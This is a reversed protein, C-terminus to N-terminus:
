KHLTSVVSSLARELLGPRAYRDFDIEAEVIDQLPKIPRFTTQPKVAVGNDGAGHILLSLENLHILFDPPTPQIRGDKLARAMEAVGLLKDQAYIERRRLWSVFKHKLSKGVGRDSEVAHSKWRRMPPMRRGGVGAARGLLPQTRVTRLKRASLSVRSFKEIRVSTQDHFVNDATIEGAEGVIRFQHDRPGVWSCTVRASVGNEFKLCAVSLDPTDNPSLPESTKEEVLHSAFATVSVAPGFIACLWVLHYGVHELTCGAQLEEAYPFPAGTPSRVSELNMLHAPNDDLEAYVLVPKGIVGSDVARWISSVSDSFLNSPAASLVRGNKEAIAFLDQTQKLDTTIPKESYVHKGAELARETVEFHSAISTLNVVIQVEPDRLLDDYSDYKALDYHKCVVDLRKEDIDFVGCIRMEPYAWQTRMYIDFVYGCGVFAINM